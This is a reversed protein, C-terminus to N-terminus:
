AAVGNAYEIAGLNTLFYLADEIQEESLPEGGSLQKRASETLGIQFVISGHRPALGYPCDARQDGFAEYNKVGFYELLLRPAGQAIDSKADTIVKARTDSDLSGRGPREKLQGQGYVVARARGIRELDIGATLLSEAFQLDRLEQDNTRLFAEHAKVRTFREVALADRRQIIETLTKM